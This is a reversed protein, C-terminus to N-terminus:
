RQGRQDFVGTGAWSYVRPAGRLPGGSGNRDQQRRDLSQGTWTEIISPGSLDIAALVAEAVSRYDAPARQQGLVFGTALLAFVTFCLAQHPSRGADMSRGFACSTM